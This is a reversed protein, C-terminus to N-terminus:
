GIRAFPASVYKQRLRLRRIAHWPLVAAFVSYFIGAAVVLRDPLSIALIISIIPVILNIMWHDKETHTDFQELKSLALAKTKGLAHRNLLVIVGSLSAYGIGFIVFMSRLDDFSRLKFFSEFYGGSFFDFAGSYIAKLPYVYILVVFILVLSLIVSRWDDLGFRRSWVHHAYWFLMINAFSAAFAPVQKIARVMEEFSMPISDGGGIVLLTVAFAFAADIFTELRSMEMGRQRFGKKAPLTTLRGASYNESEAVEPNGSISRSPRSM